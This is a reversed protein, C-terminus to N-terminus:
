ASVTFSPFDDRMHECVHFLCYHKLDRYRMLHFYIVIIM